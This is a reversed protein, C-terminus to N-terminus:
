CSDGLVLPHALAVLLRGFASRRVSADFSRLFRGETRVGTLRAETIFDAFRSASNGADQEARADPRRSPRNTRQDAPDGARDPSPPRPASDGFRRFLEALLVVRVVPRM